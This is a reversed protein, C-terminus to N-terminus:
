TLFVRPLMRAPVVSLARAPPQSAGLGRAPRGPGALLVGHLGCAPRGPGADLCVWGPGGLGGGRRGMRGLEEGVRAGPQQVM